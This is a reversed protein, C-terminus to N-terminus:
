IAAQRAEKARTQQKISRRRNEDEQEEEVRMASNALGKARHLSGATECPGGIQCPWPLALVAGAGALFSRRSLITKSTKIVPKSPKWIM